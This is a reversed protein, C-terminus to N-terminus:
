GATAPLRSLCGAVHKELRALFLGPLPSGWGSVDESAAVDHAIPVVRAALHAVREFLQEPNVKCDRALEDWDSAKVMVADTQTFGIRMALHAPRDVVYPLFSNLDYLPALRTSHGHHMLAYNRAHADTGLTLWNFAVADLFTWIDARANGGTVSDRLLGVIQRAGPGGLDEYKRSPSLGLAQVADEQHIRLSEGTPGKYRDFREVVLVRSGDFEQLSTRAVPLGVTAALHMTLHEGLDQDDMGPIAPKFIHTTAREGSPDAWGHATRALAFKAQAGALSFQGTGPTPAWSAADTALNKIRKGIEIDSLLVAAGEHPAAGPRVFRAAGAVDEGVHWLLAYADQRRVGYRARWRSLVESRDPLLGGIWNTVREGSYRVGAVPLSCSLGGTVENAGPLYELRAAGERASHLDAIHRGHMVVRLLRGVSARAAPPGGATSM